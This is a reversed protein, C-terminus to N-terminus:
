QISREYRGVMGIVCDIESKTVFPLTVIEISLGMQPLVTLPPNWMDVWPESPYSVQGKDSAWFKDMDVYGPFLRLPGQHFWKQCLSMRYISNSKFDEDVLSKNFLFTVGHIDFSTPIPLSPKGDEDESSYFSTDVPYYSVVKQKFPSNPVLVEKTDLGIVIRAKLETRAPIKFRIWQWCWQIDKFDYHMFRM